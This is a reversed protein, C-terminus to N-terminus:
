FLVKEEAQKRETIDHVTVVRETLDSPSQLPHSWYETPFCSGDKRWCVENLNHIPQRSKIAERRACEEASDTTGDSQNRHLLRHLNNGIIEDPQYGTMKLLVDNCFTVNGEADLGCLGEAVANLVMQLQAKSKDRSSKPSQRLPM